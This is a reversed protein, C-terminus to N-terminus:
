DLKGDCTPAEGDFQGVITSGDGFCTRVTPGPNLGFGAECDYSVSTGFSYQGNMIQLVRYKMVLLPQLFFSCLDNAIIYDM